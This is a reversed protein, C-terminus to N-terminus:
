KLVHSYMLLLTAMVKTRAVYWHMRHYLTGACFIPTWRRFHSSLALILSKLYARRYIRLGSSTRVGGWIGKTMRTCVSKTLVPIYMLGVALLRVYLFSRLSFLLSGNLYVLPTLTCREGWSSISCLGM